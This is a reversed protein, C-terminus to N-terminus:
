ADEARDAVGPVEVVRFGPEGPRRAELLELCGATSGHHGTGFARGPEITIVLRGAASAPEWPPAVLLRRGVAIARFHARWAEAWNEDALPTVRAGRPAAFGLRVLSDLYTDVHGALAAVEHTDPFFARLWPAGISARPPPVLRAPCHQM